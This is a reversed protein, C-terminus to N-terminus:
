FDQERQGLLVQSQTSRTVAPKQLALRHLPLLSKAMKTSAPLPFPSTLLTLSTLLTPPASSHGRTHRLLSSYAAACLGTGWCHGSPPDPQIHQAAVQLCCLFHSFFLSILSWGMEVQRDQAHEKSMSKSQSYRKGQQQQISQSMVFCPLKHRIWLTPHHQFAEQRM